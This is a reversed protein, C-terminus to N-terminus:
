GLRTPACFVLSPSSTIIPAHGKIVRAYPTAMLQRCPIQLQQFALILWNWLESAMKRTASTWPLQSPSSCRWVQKAEYVDLHANRCLDGRRPKKSHAQALESQLVDNYKNDEEFGIVRNLTNQVSQIYGNSLISCTWTNALWAKWM